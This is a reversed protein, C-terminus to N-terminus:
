HSSILLKRSIIGAPTTKGTIERSAKLGRPFYCAFCGGLSNNETFELNGTMLENICRNWSLISAIHANDKRDLMKWTSRIVCWFCWITCSVFESIESPVGIRTVAATYSFRESHQFWSGLQKAKMPVDMKNQTSALVDNRSTVGHHNRWELWTTEFNEAQFFLYTFCKWSYKM